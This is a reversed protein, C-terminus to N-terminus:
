KAKIGREDLFEAFSEIVYGDRIFDMLNDLNIMKNMCDKCYVGAILEDEAFIEGCSHCMEGATLHESGCFPCIPFKLQYYGFADREVEARYALDAVDFGSRCDRCYLSM